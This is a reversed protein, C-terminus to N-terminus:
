KVNKLEVSFLLKSNPPIDPGAGRAGYGMNAPITLTRKGGVRMGEVGVDWGKIVEQVGLRFEFPKGSVCADFQKGSVLKGTYYVQM